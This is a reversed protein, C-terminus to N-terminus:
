RNANLIYTEQVKVGGIQQVINVYDKDIIFYEKLIDSKSM